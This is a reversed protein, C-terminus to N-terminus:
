ARGRLVMADLIASDLRWPYRGTFRLSLLNSIRNIGIAGGDFTSDTTNIGVPLDLVDDSNSDLIFNVASTGTQVIDLTKWRKKLGPQMFHQRATIVDYAIAGATDDDTNDECRYVTDGSRIYLIGNNEAFHEAPVPLEWTTWGVTETSPSYTLVYVTTGFAALYQSRAESWFAVPTVATTSELRTLDAIKAGLDEATDDGTVLSRSLSRFGGRSYYFMDGLVNTTLRSADTGPGNLASVFQFKAPDPSTQWLQISDQFLVALYGKFYSLGKVEQSGASNQRIALFGADRPKVWDTPGVTTASFRLVGASADDAFLKGNSKALAFGPDFPLSVRTAVAAAASAPDSNLWHHEVRGTDREIAVYPYAKGGTASSTIEVAHLKTISTLSYATGDGVPDYWIESPRTDQLSQGGPCVTRLLGDSAYLGATSAHVDCLKVLAPRRELNGGVKLSVNTARRLSAQDSM